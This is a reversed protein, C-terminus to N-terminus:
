LAETARSVELSKAVVTRLMEDMVVAENRNIRSILTTSDFPNLSANFATMTSDIQETLLEPAEYTINYLTHFRSGSEHFYEM